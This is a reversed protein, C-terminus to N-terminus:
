ENRTLLHQFYPEWRDGVHLSNYVIDKYDDLNHFCILFGSNHCFYSKINPLFKIKDTNQSIMRYGGGRNDKTLIIDISIKNTKCYLKTPLDEANFINTECNTIDFIKIGEYEYTKHGEAIIDLLVTISEIKECIYKGMEKMISYIPDNIEGSIKSFVNLIAECLPSYTLELASESAGTLKSAGKSGYSDMVEVFRMQPFIKRYDKGYFYDLVMTLSCIEEEIHHHDFNRMEPDFSTGQDIVWCSKDDLHEQTSKIRTAKCNLKHALVCTALFDDTHAKGDHVIIMTNDIMIPTTPNSGM